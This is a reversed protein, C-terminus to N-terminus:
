GAETALVCVMTFSAFPRRSPSRDLAEDSLDEPPVTEPLINRTM